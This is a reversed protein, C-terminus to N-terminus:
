APATACWPSTAASRACRARMARPRPKPAANPRPPRPKTRRAGAHGQGAAAGRAKRDAVSRARSGAEVRHHRRDSRCVRASSHSGGLSTVNATSVSRTTEAGSPQRMM